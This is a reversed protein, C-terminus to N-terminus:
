NKWIDPDDTEHRLARMRHHLEEILDEYQPDDALNHLEQPDEQLDYLEHEQPWRSYWFILKYRETRIGRFPPIYGLLPYEYYEYLWDERWDVEQGQLLPLFSRGHMGEPVPVGALDLLTPGIDINLIMHDETSGPEILGPYRMLFPVKISPEYMLRKDSMGFEGMFFGNDSTHIVATDEAIGLEDLTDLVRGVSEDVGALLRCRQRQQEMWKELREGTPRDSTRSSVWEPRDSLDAGWTEPPEIHQDEYLHEFREPPELPVHPAKYWVFLIFPRDHPQKLFKVAHETLIDTLHGKYERDEYPGEPSTAEAVHPDHYWGHARFGFYYDFGRDRLFPRFHSKGIFATEYGHEQLVEPFTIFEKSLEIEELRPTVRNACVRHAHSYLGTMISARSPACLSNTVFANQLLVGEEALRDVNSSQVWDNGYAGIAQYPHDDPMFMIINPRADKGGRETEAM